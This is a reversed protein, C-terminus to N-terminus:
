DARLDFIEVDVGEAYHAFAPPGECAPLGGAAVLSDDCQLLEVQQAPYPPHHVQGVYIRDRREIFMLYRELFFFEATGPESAPLAEGIQYRVDLQAPSNKRQTTHHIENDTRTMRMTASYYPLGWFTRATWVALANAADLSLFYIGPKGNRYVYTRVNTELFRFALSEPLWRPRVGQMAFPVVGIYAQGEYLDLELGSPVLPRLEAVPVAWHLFLLNRWQQYGRVPQDPRLTPTVRDLM